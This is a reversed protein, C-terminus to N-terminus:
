TEPVAVVVSHVPREIGITHGRLGNLLVVANIHDRDLLALLPERVRCAAAVSVWDSVDPRVGKLAVRELAFSGVLLHLNFDIVVPVLYWRFWTLSREHVVGDVHAVRHDLVFRM